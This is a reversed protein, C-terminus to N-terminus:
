ATETQTSRPRGPARASFWGVFAVRPSQGM